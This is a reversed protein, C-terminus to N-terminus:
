RDVRAASSLRTGAIARELFQATVPGGDYAPRADARDRGCWFPAYTRPAVAAKSRTMVSARSADLAPFLGFVLGSIVSTAATFSLVWGDIEIPRSTVVYSQALTALADLTWFAFLIGIAGGAVSLLLSEVLVQGILRGRTGGVAARIAFEPPAGGRTVAASERRQRM